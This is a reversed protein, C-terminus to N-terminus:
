DKVLMLVEKYKEDLIKIDKFLSFFSKGLKSKSLIWFKIKEDYVVDDLIYGYKKALKEIQNYEKYGTKVKYTSAQVIEYKEVNKLVNIACDRYAKALNAKGLKTGGFYRVVFICVRNFDKNILTNLIPKGATGEPEKDDSFKYVKDSAYAYCYHSANPYLDKVQKKIDNFNNSYAFAIGIFKSNSVKIISECKKKITFSM